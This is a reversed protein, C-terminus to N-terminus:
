SGDAWICIEWCFGGVASSLWVVERDRVEEVRLMRGRAGGHELAWRRPVGEKCGSGAPPTVWWGGRFSYVTTFCVGMVEGVENM